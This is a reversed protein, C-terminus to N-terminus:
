GPCEVPAVCRAFQGDLQMKGWRSEFIFIDFTFTFYLKTKCVPKAPDGKYM